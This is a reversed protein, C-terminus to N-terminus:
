DRQPEISMLMLFGMGWFIVTAINEIINATQQHEIIYDIM